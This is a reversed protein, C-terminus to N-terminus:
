PTTSPSSDMEPILPHMVPKPTLPKFFGFAKRNSIDLGATVDLWIGLDEQLNLRKYYSTANSPVTFTFNGFGFDSLRFSNVKQNAPIDYNISVRNASATAFDPDNEFNIQYRMKDFTNVM